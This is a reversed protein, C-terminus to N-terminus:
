RTLPRAPVGIVLQGTEVESVVAAGAGVVCDSGIQAGPLVRSGIGVLTNDGVTAAGGLVAGPAVHSNEGIVCDHEVVAGSNVSAHARVHAKSHVVALPGIYVGDDIRASPSIFATPHIVTAFSAETAKIIQRRLPLDGMGLILPHQRTLHAHDLTSLGGLRPALDNLTSRADDDIFGSIRLGAAIAAEAVVVAHGGGGIIVIGSKSVGKGESM